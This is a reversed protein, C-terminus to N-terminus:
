EKDEYVTDNQIIKWFTHICYFLLNTHNPFAVIVCQTGVWPVMLFPWLVNITVICRYSLLPLAVLMRKRKLMNLIIAFNSHVCLLAYCILSLCLVGVFYPFFALCYVLLLLVM